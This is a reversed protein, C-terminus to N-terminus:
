EGCDQCKSFHYMGIMEVKVLGGCRCTGVTDGSKPTSIDMGVSLKKPNGENSGLSGILAKVREIAGSSAKLKKKGFKLKFVNM